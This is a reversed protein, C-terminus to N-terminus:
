DCAAWSLKQTRQVEGEEKGQEFGDRKAYRSQAETEVSDPRREEEGRKRRREEQEEVAGARREERGKRGM